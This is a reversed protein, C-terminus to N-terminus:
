KSMTVQREDRTGKRIRIVPYEGVRGWFGPHKDESKRLWELLKQGFLWKHIYLNLFYKNTSRWCFIEVAHTFAFNRKFWRLSHPYFYLRPKSNFLRVYAKGAFHRAIRYLQIPFLTINMFWSRYFLSYVITTNGGAKTVRYMENVATKQENKPIHYLTHQCLVADCSNDQLPINTIDACLFIGKQTGLNFKAQILANVSIDACIRYEFSDSLSLYEELGIPGSAIDLLYKGSAPLYKQAKTFSNRVYKSAVDRFDVWKPSDEYIKRDNKVEYGVQNYYQFVREKDFAMRGRHDKGNGIFLAYAPLLLIIDDIVPYFYSESANVFGDHINEAKQREHFHKTLYAFTTKEDAYTLREKTVPCQLISPDFSVM